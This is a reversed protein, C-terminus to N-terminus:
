AHVARHLGALSARLDLMVPECKGACPGITLASPVPAPGPSGGAGAGTGAAGAGAGAGAGAEAGAGAGVERGSYVCTCDRVAAIGLGGAGAQASASLAASVGPASLWPGKGDSGGRAGIGLQGRDGRGFTWVQGGRTLCATHESGCAVDVVGAGDLAPLHTPERQWIKGNAWTYGAAGGSASGLGLQQWRDCGFAFVTGDRLVVVSHGSSKDGGAAIAVAPERSPIEVRGAETCDAATAPRGLQGFRLARGCTARDSSKARSFVRGLSDLLLCHNEGCSERVVPAAPAAAQHDMVCSTVYPLLSWHRPPEVLHLFSFLGDIFVILDTSM